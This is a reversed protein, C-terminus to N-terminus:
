GGPPALSAQHRIRLADDGIRHDPKLQGVKCPVGIAYRGHQPMVGAREGARAGVGIDDADSAPGHQEVGARAHRNVFLQQRMCEVLDTGSAFELAHDASMRVGVMDAADGLHM